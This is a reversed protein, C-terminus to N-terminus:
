IQYLPRNFIMWVSLVVIVALAAVPIVFFTRHEEKGTLFNLAQLRTVLKQLEKKPDQEQDGPDPARGELIASVKEDTQRAENIKAVLPSRPADVEKTLYKSGILWGGIFACALVAYPLITRASGYAASLM